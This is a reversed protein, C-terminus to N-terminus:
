LNGQGQVIADNLKDVLLVADDGYEQALLQNYSIGDPIYPFLTEMLLVTDFASIHHIFDIFRLHPFIRNFSPEWTKLYDYRAATVQQLHLSTFPGLLKDYLEDHQSVDLM